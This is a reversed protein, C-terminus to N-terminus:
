VNPNHNIIECRAANGLGIPHESGASLETQREPSIVSILAQRPTTNLKAANSLLATTQEPGLHRLKVIDPPKQVLTDISWSLDSFNAELHVLISVFSRSKLYKGIRISLKGMKHLKVSTQLIHFCLDSLLYALVSKVGMVNFTLLSVHGHHPAVFGM